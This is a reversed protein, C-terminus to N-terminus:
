REAIRLQRGTLSLVASASNLVATANRGVLLLTGLKVSRAGIRFPATRFLKVGRDLKTKAEVFFEAPTTGRSWPVFLWVVPRLPFLRAYEIALRGMTYRANIDQTPRLATKEGLRYRAVDVGLPGSYGTKQALVAAYAAGDSAEQWRALLERDNVFCGAFQGKDTMLLGSVGVFEPAQVQGSEVPVDCQWGAEDSIALLPEVFVTGTEDLRKACWEMQSATAPGKGLIRERSSMSFEAKAIWGDLPEVADLFELVSGVAALGDPGCKDNVELLHSFARSNVKRVADLSPLSYECQLKDALGQMSETWGWPVFEDRPRAVSRPMARGLRKLEGEFDADVDEFGLIADDEGALALWCASLDQSLKAAAPRHVGALEHEFDFNGVFLRSM